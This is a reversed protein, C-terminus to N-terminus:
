TTEFLQSVTLRYIRLSLERNDQGGYDAEAFAFNPVIRVVQTRRIVDAPVEWSYDEVSGTVALSQVIRHGLGLELTVQPEHIYELYVPSFGDPPIPFPQINEASHSLRGLPVDRSSTPIVGSRRIKMRLLGVGAWSAAAARITLRVTGQLDKVLDHPLFIWAPNRTMWRYHEWGDNEPDCFSGGVFAAWDAHGPYISVIESSM